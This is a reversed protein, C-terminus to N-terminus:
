IHTQQLTGNNGVKILMKELSAITLNRENKREQLRRQYKNIKMSELTQATNGYVLRRHAGRYKPNKLWKNYIM